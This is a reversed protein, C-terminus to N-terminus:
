RFEVHWHRVYGARQEDVFRGPFEPNTSKYVEGISTWGVYVFNGDDKESENIVYDTLCASGQTKHRFDVNGVCERHTAHGCETGGTIVMNDTCGSTEALACIRGVTRRPLCRVNTCNCKPPLGCQNDVRCPGKNFSIGCDRLASRTEDEGDADCRCPCDEDSDPDWPEDPWIPDDWSFDLEGESTGVIDIRPGPIYVIGIKCVAISDWTGLIHAGETISYFEHLDSSSPSFIVPNPLHDGAPILYLLVLNNDCFIRAAIQGGLPMNLAASVKFNDNSFKNYPLLFLLFLFIFIFFVEVSLILNKKSM